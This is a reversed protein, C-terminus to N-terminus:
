FIDEVARTHHIEQGQSDHENQGSKQFPPQRSNGEGVKYILGAGIEQITLFEGREKMRM